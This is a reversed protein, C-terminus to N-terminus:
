RVIVFRSNYKKTQESLYTIFYCGPPLASVDIRYEQLREFHMVVKGLSNSIIMNGGLPISGIQIASNAPNPYLNMAEINTRQTNLAWNLLTDRQGTLVKRMHGVQGITFLTQCIDNSYDMYNEWMDPLDGPEGAGCTNVDTGPCANAMQTSLDMVPTDDIGDSGCEEDGNIHRLGLYHGIEHVATRGASVLDSLDSKYPNNNGITQYQLFVGDVIDGFDEDPWNDPLTPYRPPTALGLLAPFYLGLFKIGADAVWINLYRNTPWADHGGQNSHKMKEFHELNFGGLILTLDGFTEIDTQTRTIGNTPNGDPDIDALFFEIEADAALHKFVPRTNATDGHRNRYADNIVEMQNYIYEDPINQKDTNYIVHFVVPIRLVDGNRPMPMNQATSFAKNQNDLFGPHREEMIKDMLTNGCRHIRFDSQAESVKVSVVWLALILFFHLNNKVCPFAFKM